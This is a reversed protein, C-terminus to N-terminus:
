FSTSGKANKQINQLNQYGEQLYKSCGGKSGGRLFAVGGDVFISGRVLMKALFPRFPPPYCSFLRHGGGLLDAM